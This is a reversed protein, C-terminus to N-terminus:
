VVVRMAPELEAGTSSPLFFARMSIMGRMSTIKKRSAVKTRNVSENFLRRNPLGTLADHSADHRLQQILRGNQLAVSAHNVITEFAALDQAVFAGVDGLHHVLCLAGSQGDEGRLPGIMADGYGAETLFERQALDPLSRVLVAGDLASALRM